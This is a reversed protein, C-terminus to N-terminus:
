SQPSSTSAAVAVRLREDLEQLTRWEALPQPLTRIVQAARQYARVRFANDGEIPLLEAMEDFSDAVESNRLSLPVVPSANRLGRVKRDNATSAPAAPM